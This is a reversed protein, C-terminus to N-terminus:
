ATNVRSRLLYFGRVRLAMDAPTGIGRPNNPVLLTDLVDFGCRRCLTTLAADTFIWYNSPDDNLERDGLLYALSARSVEALEPALHSFIWTGLLCHGTIRALSEVFAYPNKLHYLLGVCIAFDFSPLDVPLSNNSDSVCNAKLDAMLFPRDVSFDVIAVPLDLRSSLQGVIYPSQDHRNAFDIATVKYGCRALMFAIEGNGVGIDAVHTVADACLLAENGSKGLLELIPGLNAYISLHPFVMGGRRLLEPDTAIEDRLGAVRTEIFRAAARTETPSAM